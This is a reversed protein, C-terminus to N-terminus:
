VSEEGECKWAARTHRLRESGEFPAVLQLVVREVPCAEGLVYLADHAKPILREFEKDFPGPTSRALSQM